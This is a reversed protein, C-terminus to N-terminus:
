WYNPIINGDADLEPKVPEPRVPKEIVMVKIGPQVAGIGSILSGSQGKNPYKHLGDSALETPHLGRREESLPKRTSQSPNVNPNTTLLEPLTKIGRTVLAHHNPCLTYVDRAIGEHHIDITESYGCVECKGRPKKNGRVVRTHFRVRGNEEARYLPDQRRKRMYERMYNVRAKGKLAM